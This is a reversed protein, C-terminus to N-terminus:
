NDFSRLYAPKSIDRLRRQGRGVKGRTPFVGGPSGSPSSLVQMMRPYPIQYHQAIEVRSKAEFICAEIDATDNIEKNKRFLRRTEAVAYSREETTKSPDTAEWTSATKLVSRYLSLVTKHHPSIFIAKTAM